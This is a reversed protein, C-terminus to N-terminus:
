GCEQHGAEGYRFDKQVLCAVCDAGLLHRMIGQLGKLILASSSERARFKGNLRDM